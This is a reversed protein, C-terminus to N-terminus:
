DSLPVNEPSQRSSPRSTAPTLTNDSDDISTTSVDSISENSIPREKNVTLDDEDNLPALVSSTTDAVINDDGISFSTFVGSSRAPQDTTLLNSTLTEQNASTHRLLPTSIPTGIHSITVTPKYGPCMISMLSPSPSPTRSSM